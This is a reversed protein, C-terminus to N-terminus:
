PSDAIVALFEDGFNKLKAKGVGKVRIMEDLTSPRVVAMDELTRDPFIVYAPVGRAKAITLRKQKLASLLGLDRDSIDRTEAISKKKERSKKSPPKAEQKRYLFTEKGRSLDNGKKTIKLGGYGAVDVELFGISIMQRILSQWLAKS